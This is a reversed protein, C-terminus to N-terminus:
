GKKLENRYEKPTKSFAATFVRTFYEPSNFGSAFSIEKISMNTEKLLNLSHFLRKSNLYNSFNMGTHKKFYVGMYNESVNLLKAIDSLTINKVFNKDIYKITEWIPEYGTNTESKEAKEVACLFLNLLREACNEAMRENYLNNDLINILLKFENEILNSDEDSFYVCLPNKYESLEDILSKEPVSVDLKLNYLDFETEEDLLKHHSEGPFLLYAYNKKVEFPSGNIYHVGKGETFFEFEYFDHYGYVGNNPYIKSPMGSAHNSTIKKDKMCVIKTEFHKM